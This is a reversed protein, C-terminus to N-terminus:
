ELRQSLKKKRDANKKRRCVLWEVNYTSIFELYEFQSM